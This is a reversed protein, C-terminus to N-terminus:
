SSSNSLHYGFLGFCVYLYERHKLIYPTIRLTQFTTDLYGWVFMCTSGTKFCNNALSLELPGEFRNNALSLELLEEALVSRSSRWFLDLSLPSHLRGAAWIMRAGRRSAAAPGDGTAVEGARRQELSRDEEGTGIAAAGHGKERARRGRCCRRRRRGRGRGVGGGAGV